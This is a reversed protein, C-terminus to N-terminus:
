SPSPGDDRRSLRVLLDDGGRSPGAETKPPTEPEALPLAAGWLLALDM